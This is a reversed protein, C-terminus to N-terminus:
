SMDHSLVVVDDVDVDVNVDASTTLRVIFEWSHTLHKLSLPILLQTWSFYYSEHLHLHHRHHNRRFMIMRIRMTPEVKLATVIAIKMVRFIIRKDMNKNLRKNINLSMNKNRKRGM